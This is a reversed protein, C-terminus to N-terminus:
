KRGSTAPLRARIDELRERHAASLSPLRACEDLARRARAAAGTELAVEALSLQAHAVVHAVRADSEKAHGAVARELQEL